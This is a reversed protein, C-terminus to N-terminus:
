EFDATDQKRALQLTPDLQLQSGTVDDDYDDSIQLFALCILVLM